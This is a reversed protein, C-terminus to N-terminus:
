NGTRLLFELQINPPAANIGPHFNTDRLQSAEMQPMTTTGKLPMLPSPELQHMPPITHLHSTERQSISAPSELPVTYPHSVDRQSTSATTDIRCYENYRIDEVPLTEVFRPFDDIAHAFAAPASLQATVSRGVAALWPASDAAAANHRSKFTGPHRGAPRYATSIHPPLAM